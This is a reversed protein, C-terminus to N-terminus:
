LPRSKFCPIGLLAGGLSRRLFKFVSTKMQSRMLRNETWVVGPSNSFAVIVPWKPNTSSSFESLSIVLNDHRWRKRFASNEFHKGDVRSRLAPTKLNIGGTQLANGFLQPPPQNM